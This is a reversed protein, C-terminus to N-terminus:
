HGQASMNISRGSPSGREAIRLREYIRRILVPEVLGLLQSKFDIQNSHMLKICVILCQRETPRQVDLDSIIRIRCICYVTYLLTAINVLCVSAPLVNLVALVSDHKCFYATNFHSLNYISHSILRRNMLFQIFHSIFLIQTRVKTLMPPTTDAGAVFGVRKALTIHYTQVNYFLLLTTLM